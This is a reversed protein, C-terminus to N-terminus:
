RKRKRRDWLVIGALVVLMVGITIAAGWAAGFYATAAREVFLGLLVLTAVRGFFSAADLQKDRM